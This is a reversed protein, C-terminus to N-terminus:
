VLLLFSVLLYYNKVVFTDNWECFHFAVCSSRTVRKDNLYGNGNQLSCLINVM